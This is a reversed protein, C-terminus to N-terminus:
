GTILQIINEKISQDTKSNVSIDRLLIRLKGIQLESICLLPRLSAVESQRWKELTAFTGTEGAEHIKGSIAKGIGPIQQLKELPLDSINGRHAKIEISANRYAHVKFRDEGAIEMIDALEDFLGALESNTM